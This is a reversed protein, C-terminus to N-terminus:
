SSFTKRLASVLTGGVEAQPVFLLSKERHAKELSFCKDRENELEPGRLRLVVSMQPVPPPQRAYPLVNLLGGETIVNM